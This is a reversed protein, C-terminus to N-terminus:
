HPVQFQYVFSQCNPNIIPPDAMDSSQIDITGRSLPAVGIVVITGYNFANSMNRYVSGIEYEVEQLLMLVCAM